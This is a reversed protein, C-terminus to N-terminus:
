CHFDGDRNGWLLGETRAQTFGRKEGKCHPCLWKFDYELCKKTIGTNTEWLLIKTAYIVFEVEPHNQGWNTTPHTAVCSLM